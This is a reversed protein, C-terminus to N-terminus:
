ELGTRKLDWPKCHHASCVLGLGWLKATQHLSASMLGTIVCIVNLELQWSIELLFCHCQIIPPALVLSPSWTLGGTGTMKVSLQLVSCSNALYLNSPLCSPSNLHCFYRSSVGQPLFSSPTQPVSLLQTASVSFWSVSGTLLYSSPRAHSQPVHKPKQVNNKPSNSAM